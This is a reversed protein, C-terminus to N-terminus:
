KMVMVTTQSVLSITTQPERLTLATSAVKGLIHFYKGRMVNLSSNISGVDDGQLTQFKVWHVTKVYDM